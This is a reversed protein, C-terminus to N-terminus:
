NPRRRVGWGIPAVRNGPHHPGPGWIAQYTDICRGQRQLRYAAGALLLWWLLLAGAMWRPADAALLGLTIVAVAALVALWGLAKHLREFLRRRLTMDYHDGRMETDSPGGKSGRMWGGLVQLWGLALLSWGGLAHWWAAASASGTISSGNFWVLVVGVSMLVVGGYQLLRHAHWWGKPDLQRPWDHSPTIKFYRATLAGMPLMVGWALVMLRAHWALAPAIHHGASGSLPLLLWELM